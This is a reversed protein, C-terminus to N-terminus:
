RRSGSSVGVGDDYGERLNEDWDHLDRAGLYPDHDYRSRLEEDLYPTREHSFGAGGEFSPGVPQVKSVTAPDPTFILTDDQRKQIEDIQRSFHPKMHAHWVNAPYWWFDVDLVLEDMSVGPTYLRYIPESDSLLGRCAEENKALAPGGSILTSLLVLTLLHPKM